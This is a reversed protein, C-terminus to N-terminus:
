CSVKLFQGISEAGHQRINNGRLDLTRIVTNLSLKMLLEKLCVEDLMCDNLLLSQVALDHALARGLMSCTEFNLTNNSLDLIGDNINGNCQTRIKKVIEEPPEIKNEKCLQCFITVLEDM